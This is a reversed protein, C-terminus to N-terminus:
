KNSQNSARLRRPIDRERKGYYSRLAKKMVLIDNKIRDIQPLTHIRAYKYAPLLVLLYHFLGSFGAMKTTDAVTFYSAERNIYIKVGATQSYNPILDLFIGNATKDYRTVSGGADQGDTLTDVNVNSSDATQQDVPKIEQYTGSADMVLVKYIDLILSGQEDTVFTYDRQGSVLNTTIIPYDVHNTDDFQWTGGTDFIDALVEDMAINIDGNVKALLTTNGSVDGDNFGCEDEYNQILGDKNTTDSYPISM